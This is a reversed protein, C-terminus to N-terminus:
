ENKLYRILKEPEDVSIYIKELDAYMQKPHYWFKRPQIANKFEICVTREKEKMFYKEFYAKSYNKISFPERQENGSILKVDKVNNKNIIVVPEVFAMGPHILMLAQYKQLLFFGEGQEIKSDPINFFSIVGLGNKFFKIKESNNFRLKPNFNSTVLLIIIGVMAFFLVIAWTQYGLSLLIIMGSMLIAIFLIWIRLIWHKKKPIDSFTEGFIADIELNTNTVM